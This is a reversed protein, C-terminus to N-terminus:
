QEESGDAIQQVIDSTESVGSVIRTLEEATKNAIETGRTVRSISGEILATTESAAKASKAALSRVEDAVVAFGKGHVGARAAEVAANLALINTQFAIDDIVKIIKSINASSENIEEMSALMEKMQANGNEAQAMVDASLSSAKKADETNKFVLEAVKKMNNSLEQVDSAQRISAESLSQAGESVQRSGANVGEALENIEGMTDNLADLIRNLSNKIECFDGKYEATVKHNLDGNSIASLVLSIEAIHDQLNAFTANVVKQMKAYDGVYHGLMRANLDGEAMRTIVTVAENVPDQIADFTDNIGRVVEAFEGSHKSLDARTNLDGSVACESLMRADSVLERIAEISKALNENITKFKEAVAKTEETPEEIEFDMDLDGVALKELNKVVLGVAADQYDGIKQETEAMEKARNLAKLIETEDMALEVMGIDEGKSNKLMSTHQHITRGGMDFKSEDIGQQMKVFGSEAKSCMQHRDDIANQGYLEERHDTYLGKAKFQEALEKNIFTWNLDNDVVQLPFPVCDIIAKFWRAEYSVVDLTKNFGEIIARFEGAHEDLNGRPTFDGHASANAIRQSTSVLRDVADICSNISNAIEIFEGGYKLGATDIKEPIEGVGIFNMRDGCMRLPEILADLISNIGMLLEGYAGAFRSADGRADLRGNLADKQLEEASDILGNLQAVMEKTAAQLENIELCVDMEEVPTKVDGEALTVIRNTVATLPKIIQRRLSASVLIAAGICLALVLVLLMMSKVMPALNESRSSVIAFSWEDSGELTCFSVYYKEGNITTNLKDSDKSLLVGALEAYDAYDADAKALEDFTTISNVIDKDECMLITGVKDLLVAFGREGVDLQDFLDYYENFDIAAYAVGVINSNRIIPAAAFMVTSGDTKRIVTSSVYTEGAIARQFYERETIDTNNYTTGNPYAVSADLFGYTDALNQLVQKRQALSLSGDMIRSDNAIAQVSLKYRDLASELVEGFAQNQLSVKEEMGDIAINRINLCGAVGVVLVSVIVTILIRRRLMRGLKVSKKQKKEKM